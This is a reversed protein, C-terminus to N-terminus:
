KSQKNDFPTPTPGQTDCHPWHITISHCGMAPLLLLYISRIFPGNM